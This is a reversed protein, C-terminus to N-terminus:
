SLIGRFFRGFNHPKEAASGTEELKRERKEEEKSEGIRTKSFSVCVNKGFMRCVVLMRTAQSEKGLSKNERKNKERSRM